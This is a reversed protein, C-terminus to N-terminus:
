DSKYSRRRDRGTCRPRLRATAASAAGVYPPGSAGTVGAVEAPVAGGAGAETDARGPGARCPCGDRRLQALVTRDAAAPGARRGGDFTETRRPQATGTGGAPGAGPQD